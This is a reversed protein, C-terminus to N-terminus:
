RLYSHSKSKCFPVTLVENEQEQQDWFQIAREILDQDNKAEELFAAAKEKNLEGPATQFFKHLEESLESNLFYTLM